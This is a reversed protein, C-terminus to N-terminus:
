QTQRKAPIESIRELEIVCALVEVVVPGKFHFTQRIKKGRRLVL